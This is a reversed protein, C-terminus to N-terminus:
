VRQASVKVLAPLARKFPRALISVDAPDGERSALHGYRGNSFAPSSQFSSYVISAHNSPAYRSRPNFCVFGHKSHQRYWPLARKFPRALISVGHEQEQPRAPLTTAGAQFPPRPNFSRLQLT